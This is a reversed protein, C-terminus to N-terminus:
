DASRSFGDHQVVPEKSISRTVRGIFKCSWFKQISFVIVVVSALNLIIM